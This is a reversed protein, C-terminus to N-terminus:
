ASDSLGDDLDDLFDLLHEMEEAIRKKGEETSQAYLNLTTRIDTHGLLTQLEKPSVGLEALVTATTRRLDHFQLEPFGAKLCAPKFVRNRFNSYNLRGGAASVFLPAKKCNKDRDTDSFHQCIYDMSRRSLKFTRIGADTKSKVVHLEHKIWDMNQVELDALESWRMGTVLTIYIHPHWRSDIARFLSEIESTNLPRRHPSEPKKLKLRYVPNKDILESDFAEDLAGKLVAVQRIITRPKLGKNRWSRILSKITERTIENLKMSGIVPFVHLEFIELNRSATSARWEDMSEMWNRAFAEFKQNGRDAPKLTGSFKEGVVKGQFAIAEAKTKFSRSPHKNGERWRCGWPKSKRNTRYISL